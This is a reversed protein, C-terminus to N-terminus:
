VIRRELDFIYDSTVVISADINYRCGGTTYSRWSEFDAQNVRRSLSYSPEGIIPLYKPWPEDDYEVEWAKKMEVSYTEWIRSSYATGSASLHFIISEFLIKNHLTQHESERILKELRADVGRTGNRLQENSLQLENVKRLQIDNRIALFIAIIATIMAFYIM